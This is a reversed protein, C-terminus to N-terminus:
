EFTCLASAEKEAFTSYNAPWFCYNQYDAGPVDNVDLMFGIWVTKGSAVPFLANTDGQYTIEDIPLKYETIMVKCKALDVGYLGEVISREPVDKASDLVQVSALCHDAPMVMDLKGGFFRRRIIGVGIDTFKSISFQFGTMFGNVMMETTDQLYSKRWPQHMTIVDAFRIVQFYLNNSEYAMRVVACCDQPGNIGKGSSPLIVVQPVVGVTHWKEPDGDMALPAALKKITVHPQEARTLISYGAKNGGAEDPLFSQATLTVPTSHKLYDHAGSLVFLHQGNRMYDGASILVTGGAGDFAYYHDPHDLWYGSWDAELPFGVHGLVLGDPDMGIWEAQHGWGTLIFNGLSKVGQIPACDNLPCFWRLTGDSTFRALDAAGSNSFGLSTPDYKDLVGAIVGGDPTMVSESHTRLPSLEGPKYPSGYSDIKCPIINKASFDYVPRQQTDLGTFKWIFGLGGPFTGMMRLSGDPQVYRWRTDAMWFPPQQNLPTGDGDNVDIVGDNNEDHVIVFQRTKPNQTYFSVMRGIYNDFRVIAVGDQNTKEDLKRTYSYVGFLIGQTTFFGICGNTGAPVGWLADAKWALTQPNVTWSLTGQQDFFRITPGAAGDTDWVRRLANGFQSFSAHLLTGDPAFVSVYRDFVALKGDDALALSCNGAKGHFAQFRFREPDYAGYPGDGKGITKLVAQVEGTDKLSYLCVEGSAYAVAMRSNAVAVALAPAAKMFGFVQKGQADLAQVRQKACVCWLLHHQVDATISTPADIPLAETFEPNAADGVLIRNGATDALYLKGDLCALSDPTTTTLNPLTIVPRQEGFPVPLGSDVAIRTILINTGDAKGFYILKGDSCIGFTESSGKFIWRAPRTYTPDISLLNIAREGWGMGLLLDGNPSFAVRRTSDSDAQSDENKLGNNAILGQYKISLRGEVVRVEYTGPIMPKGYQDYAPLVFHYAGKKLPLDQFLYRVVRGDPYFVGASKRGDDASISFSGAYPPKVGAAAAVAGLDPISGRPVGNLDHTPAAFGGLARVGWGAVTSRAPNWGLTATPTFNGQSPDALDVPLQVSHSDLGGSLTSWTGVNIRCQGPTSGVYLTKYLNDDCQLHENSGGVVVGTGVEALVNNFVACDTTDIISIGDLTNQYLTNNVVVSKRSHTLSIGAQSHNAILNEVRVNASDTVNVALLGQNVVIRQLTVGQSHAVTIATSAQNTISLDALTSGNAHEFVIGSGGPLITLMTQRVGNGKVSVGSPVNLTTISFTGVPLTVTRGAKASSIAKVFAPAQEDDAFCASMSALMAYLVLLVIEVQRWSATVVAVNM